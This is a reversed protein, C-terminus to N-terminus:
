FAYGLLPYFILAYIFLIIATLGKVNFILKFNLSERAIGFFFFLLGQFVFLGAFVYALPNIKSFFAFHYVLGMWLWYFLLISSIIVGSHKTRYVTLFIAILALVVLFIQFPWITLNYFKFVDLFQEQTFPLEM